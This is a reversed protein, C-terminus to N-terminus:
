QVTQLLLPLHQASIGIARMPQMACGQISMVLQGEQAARQRVIEYRVLLANITEGPRRSFALM